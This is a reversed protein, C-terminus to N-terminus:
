SGRSPSRIIVGAPVGGSSAAARRRAVALQRQGFADVGAAPSKPGPRHAGQRCRLRLAPRGAQSCRRPWYRGREQRRRFPAACVQHLDGDVQGVSCGQGGDAGSRARTVFHQEDDAGSRRVTSSAPAARVQRRGGREHGLIARTLRELHQRPNVRMKSCSLEAQSTSRVIVGASRCWRGRPGQGIRPSESSAIGASRIHPRCGCGQWASGCAGSRGHRQCRRPPAPGGVRKIVSASRGPEGPRGTGGSTSVAGPPVAPHRSYPTRQQALARPSGVPVGSRPQM